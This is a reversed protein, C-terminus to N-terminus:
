LGASAGSTGMAILVSGRDIIAPTTFDCLAPRDVANVLLGRAKLRKVAAVAQAEDEIAVMAIRAHANDEGVIAAGGRELLRRKAAAANGEGLLIVPQGNLQLFFPTSHM